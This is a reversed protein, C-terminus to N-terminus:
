SSRTGSLPEKDYLMWNFNKTTLHLKLKHIPKIGLQKIQYDSISKVLFLVSFCFICFMLVCLWECKCLALIYIYINIYIYQYMYIYIIYIYILKIWIDVIYLYKKCVKMREKLRIFNNSQLHIVYWFYKCFNFTWHTNDNNTKYLIIQHWNISVYKAKWFFFIM